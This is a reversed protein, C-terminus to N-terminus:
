GSHWWPFGVANKKFLGSRCECSITKEEICVLMPVKLRFQLGKAEGGGSVANAEDATFWRRYSKWFWFADFLEHERTIM